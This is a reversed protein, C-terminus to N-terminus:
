KIYICVGPNYNKWWINISSTDCRSPLSRLKNQSLKLTVLSTMDGLRDMCTPMAPAQKPSGVLSIAYRVSSNWFESANPLGAISPFCTSADATYRTRATFCIDIQYPGMRNVVEREVTTNTTTFTTWTPQKNTNSRPFSWSCVRVCVDQTSFVEGAGRNRHTRHNRRHPYIHVQHKMKSLDYMCKTPISNTAKLGKSIQQYSQFGACETSHAISYDSSYYWVLSSNNTIKRDWLKM